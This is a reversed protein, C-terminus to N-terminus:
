GASEIGGGESPGDESCMLSQWTSIAWERQHEHEFAVTVRAFSGKSAMLGHLTFGSWGDEECPEISAAGARGTASFRIPLPGDIPEAAKALVDEPSDDEGDMGYASLHITRSAYMSVLTAGDDEVDSYFYAPVDVSWPGMARSQMGRYYGVGTPAPEKLDAAEGEFALLQRLEEIERRPWDAKAGGEEASQIADLAVKAMAAEDENEPPRWRVDTWLLGLGLKFEVNADHARDWWLCFDRAVAGSERSARDWWARDRPGLVTSTYAGKLQPQGLGLNIAMGGEHNTDLVVTALAGLHEDFERQLVVFDRTTSYPLEDQSWDWELGVERGVAELLDVLWAHYGPGVTSTKTEVEVEGREHWTLRLPESLPHVMAFLVGDEESIHMARALLPVDVHTEIARAIPEFQGRRLGGNDSTSARRGVAFLGIGM